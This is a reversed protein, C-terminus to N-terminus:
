MSNTLRQFDKQGIRNPGQIGRIIKREFIQLREQDKRTLCLTRIVVHRIAIRYIKMKMMKSIRKRNIFMDYICFNRHGVCIRQNVEDCVENTKDTITRLYKFNSVREFKHWGIVKDGINAKRRRGRKYIKNQGPKSRFEEKKSRGRIESVIRRIRTIIATMWM